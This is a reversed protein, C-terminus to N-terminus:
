RCAQEISRWVVPEWYAQELVPEIRERDLRAALRYTTNPAVDLTFTKYRETPRLRARQYNQYGNFHRGDIAEAVKIQRRGPSVRFVQGDLPGALRGDVEVLVLPHLGESLPPRLDVAIRGCGQAAVTTPEVQLRYAPVEVPDASGALSLTEEGREIELELRGGSAELVGPLASAAGAPLLSQGNASRLRDGARLGMRQAAGGPSLALVRPAGGDEPAPDVVAGLEFRTRAPREIVLPAGELHELRGQEILSLIAADLREDAADVSPASLLLALFAGAFPGVLPGVLPGFRRGPCPKCTSSNPSPM